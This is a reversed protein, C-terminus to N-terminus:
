KLIAYIDGFTNQKHLEPLIRGTFASYSAHEKLVFDLHEDVCYNYRYDASIQNVREVCARAEDILEPRYEFSIFPVPRNLGKLVNLEYGEVDIKLWRPQGYLDILRDLTKTFVRIEQDWRKDRFAGRSMTEIFKRSMSSLDHSDSQWMVAEGERDSLAVNEIVVKPNFKFRSKLHRVCNPQPEVAVVMRGLESFIQARQGVNAGVDFVLDHPGIFGAYFSKQSSNRAEHRFRFDNVKYYLGLRLLAEKM